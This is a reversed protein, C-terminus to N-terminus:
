LDNATILYDLAAQWDDTSQPRFEADGAFRVTYFPGRDEDSTTAALMGILEDGDYVAWRESEEEVLRYTTTGYSYRGEASEPGDEM